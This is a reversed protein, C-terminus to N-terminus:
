VVMSLVDLLTPVLGTIDGIKTTTTSTKGTIDGKRGTIDGGFASTSVALTLITAFLISKIRTM